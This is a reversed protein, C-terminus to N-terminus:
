GAAMEDQGALVARDLPLAMTCVLGAPTWDQELQGGLQNRVTTEIVRSGFGRRGPRAAIAPGGREEWRLRLLGAEEDRRWSLRVVGGRVSLAGYKVANTSLEHLVLSMPQAATAALRVPSGQLEARPADPALSASALFAAMAGEALSRLDAGRWNAEALLVQARALAGVRAEVAEAFSRADDRPTLRLAAQVVALANKARHDVERMLLAQREEAQRRGTIDIAATLRLRRGDPLAGVPVDHFEWLRRDGTATRVVAEAPAAPAVGAFEEAHEAIRAEAAAGFARRAWAGYTPISAPAYGTIETWVRSLALVEGDEVHLMMPFPAGEVAARFRAESASLAATRAAVRRELGANASALDRQGRRAVLALGLLALMAPLCTAALPLLSRMWRDIIATYPRAATAYVPYGQVQRYAVIRRVGDLGSPGSYTAREVGQRLVALVPSSGPLRTGLAVDISRALVLGDARILGIVDAHRESALRRLAAAVDRTYISANVVGDYADAPQGNASGERRRAIAFFSEGTIRGSVPGSVYLPPADPGRLATNIERRDAGGGQPTPFFSGTILVQGDRDYVFLFPARHDPARPGAVSARRLRAHLAAAQARIEADSLGALIDNAHDIRLLLGDFIRASYEASAEAAHAVEQEAERWVQQWALWAGAATVLLPIAIAAPLLLRLAGSQHPRDPVPAAMTSPM